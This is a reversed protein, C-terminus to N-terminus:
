LRANFTKKRRQEEQNKKTTTKTPLKTPNPVDVDAPVQALYAAKLFGQCPVHPLPLLRLQTPGDLLNNTTTTTTNKKKSQSKYNVSPNKKKRKENRKKRKEYDM